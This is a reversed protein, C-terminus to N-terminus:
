ALINTSNTKESTASAKRIAFDTKGRSDPFHSGNLLPSIRTSDVRNPLGSGPSGIGAAAM